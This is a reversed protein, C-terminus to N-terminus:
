LLNHSVRHESCSCRQFSIYSSYASHVYKFAHSGQSDLVSFGHSVDLAEPETRLNVEDYQSHCSCQVSLNWSYLAVTLVLQSVLVM